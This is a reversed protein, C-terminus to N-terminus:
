RIVEKYPDSKWTSLRWRIVSFLLVLTGSILGGLGLRAWVPIEPDLMAETIGWGSLIAVGVLFLTLGLVREVRVLPSREHRDHALDHELRSVWGDTLAKLSRQADFEAMLEPKDVLYAMLEEREAPSAVEDVVKVMLEEFREPNM